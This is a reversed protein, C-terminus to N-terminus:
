EADYKQAKEMRLYHEKAVRTNAENRFIVIFFEMWMRCAILSILIMPAGLFLMAVGIGGEGNAMAILAGFLVFILALAHFGLLICWIVTNWTVTIFKTFHIDILDLM